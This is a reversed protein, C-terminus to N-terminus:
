RIQFFNPDSAFDPEAKEIKFVLWATGIPEFNNGPDVLVQFTPLVFFANPHQLRVAEYANYLEEANRFHFICLSNKD